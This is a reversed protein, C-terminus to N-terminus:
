LSLMMEYQSGRKTIGAKELFLLLSECREDANIMKVGPHKNYQLLQTLLLSGIGKRRHFKSVALQPIDGSLPEIIGYAVLEEDQYVGLIKFKNMSRKLSDFSNQWSPEFDCLARMANVNLVTERTSFKGLLKNSGSITIGKIDATFYHLMRTSKFGAKTYISIARTNDTLVELLYQQMGAEKLAPVAAEFLQRALGRNEYEKLTGTGTDYATLVGNFVGAGNLLFSVPKDQDFAGFSLEARYGRRELMNIFEDETWQRSYTAFAANFAEYLLQLSIGNLPRISVSM